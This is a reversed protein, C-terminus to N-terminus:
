QHLGFCRLRQGGLATGKRNGIGQTVPTPPAEGQGGQLVQPPNGKECLGKHLKSKGATM